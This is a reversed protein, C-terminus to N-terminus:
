SDAAEARNKLGHLQKHVMVGDGFLLSRELPSGAPGDIAIRARTVVRTTVTEPNARLSYALTFDIQHGAVKRSPVQLVYALPREVVAAVFEVPGGPVAEGEASVLWNPNITNASRRGLNDLLDYSYWGARKFGMQAIFDFIREPEAEITISRTGESVPGDIL